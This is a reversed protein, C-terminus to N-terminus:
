VVDILFGAMIGPGTQAIQESATLLVPVTTV